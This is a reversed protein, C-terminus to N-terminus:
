KTEAPFMKRLRVKVEGDLKPSITGWYVLPLEGRWIEPLYFCLDRKSLSSSYKALCNLFGPPIAPNGLTEQGVTPRALAPANSQRNWIPSSKSIQSHLGPLVFVKHPVIGQICCEMIAIKEPPISKQLRSIFQLERPNGCGVQLSADRLTAHLCILVIFLIEDPLYMDLLVTIAKTWGLLLQRQPQKRDM